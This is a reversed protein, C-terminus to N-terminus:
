GSCACNLAAMLPLTLLGSGGIAALLMYRDTNRAPSM